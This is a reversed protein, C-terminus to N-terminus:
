RANRRNPGSASLRGAADQSSGAGTLRRRRNSGESRSAALNKTMGKLEDAHFVSWYSTFGVLGAFLILIVGYIRVIPKNM